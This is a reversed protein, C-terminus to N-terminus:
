FFAARLINLSARTPYRATYGSVERGSAIYVAEFFSHQHEKLPFTKHERLLIEFPRYLNEKFMTQLLVIEDFLLVVFNIQYM